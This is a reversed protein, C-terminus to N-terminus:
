LFQGPQSKWIVNETQEAKLIIEFDSFNAELKNEIFRIHEGDYDKLIALTL